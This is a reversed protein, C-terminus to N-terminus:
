CRMSYSFLLMCRCVCYIVINYEIVGFIFIDYKKFMFIMFHTFSAFVAVSLLSQCRLLVQMVTGSGGLDM